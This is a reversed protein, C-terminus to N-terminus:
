VIGVNGFMLLHLQEGLYGINSDENDNAPSIIELMLLMRMLIVMMMQVIDIRGITEEDDLFYYKSM